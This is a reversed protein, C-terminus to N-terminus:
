KTRERFLIGQNQMATIMDNAEGNSLGSDVLARHVKFLTDESYGISNKRQRNADLLAVIVAGNVIVLGTFLLGWLIWMFPNM